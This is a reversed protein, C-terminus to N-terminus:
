SSLRTALTLVGTVNPVEALGRVAGDLDSTSKAVLHVLHGFGDASGVLVEDVDTLPIFLNEGIVKEGEVLVLTAIM